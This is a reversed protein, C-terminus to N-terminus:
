ARAKLGALQIDRQRVMEQTKAYQPFEDLGRAIEARLRANEAMLADLESQLARKGPKGGTRSVGAPCPPASALVKAPDAFLADCFDHCARLFLEEELQPVALSLPSDKIQSFVNKILVVLIDRQHELQHDMLGEVLDPVDNLAHVLEQGTYTNSETIRADMLDELHEKVGDQIWGRLQKDFNLFELLQEVHFRRLAGVPPAM